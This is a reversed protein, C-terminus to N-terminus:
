AMGGSSRPSAPGRCSARRSHRPSPRNYRFAPACSAAGTKTGTSIAHPALEAGVQVSHGAMTKGPEVTATGRWRIPRGGERLRRVTPCTATCTTSALSRTPTSRTTPTASRRASQGAAIKRQFSITAEYVREGDVIRGRRGSIRWPRSGYGSQGSGYDTPNSACKSTCTRRLAVGTSGVWGIRDSEAVRQGTEVGVKSLHGYLTYIARGDALAVDHEIVVLNGYFNLM